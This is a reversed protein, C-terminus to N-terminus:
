APEVVFEPPCIVEARRQIAPSQGNHVRRAWFVSVSLCPCGHRAAQFFLAMFIAITLCLSSPAM